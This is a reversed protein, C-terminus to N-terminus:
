YSEQGRDISESLKGQERLFESVIKKKETLIQVPGKSL